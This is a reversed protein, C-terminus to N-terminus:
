EVRRGHFNVVGDAPRVDTDVLGLSVIYTPSIRIIEPPFSPSILEGGTDLLQVTGRVEVIRPNREPSVDDIVIAARGYKLADRYKKSDTFGHGGIDIADAEPNYRYAIPVVHLDGNGGITALRGLRMSQLYDIEEATFASM